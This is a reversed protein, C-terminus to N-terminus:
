MKFPNPGMARLDQVFQEVAQTYKESDRIELNVFRVRDREIMMKQLKDSLDDSRKRVLENGRVYHCQGDNCGGILVGDIGLALADAILANNVYGACPVKVFVVNPPVPLGAELADRAAHYADNQCLFAFVTPEKGDMFSTSAAQIQAAMQKITLNRLSIAALPCIGVCNGCQRCKGLHPTPFENEDFYFSGFPCEEMCRKCKDCKTKDVVPYTPNILVTGGTFRLAELAAHQASEISAAVGMPERCCGGVYIGTRQSEEPHCQLHSEFFGLSNRPLRLVQALEESGQSPVMGGALVLLDLGLNVERGSLTDEVRVRLRGTQADPRVTSPIGRIFTVGEVEKLKQYLEEQFGPSRIDQYFIYCDADPRRQKLYLVQKLSVSCCVTSCYPLHREDRSGVCQIFGVEKPTQALSGLLGEMELNSIVNPYLGYGFEEVKSLPYPDWGATVLVAGVLLEEQRLEQDLEVAKSPCARECERCGPPCLERDVVYAVPFGMPLSPHIAKTSAPQLGAPEGKPQTVSSAPVEVPCVRVCEGCGNCRAEDVFRPRKELRVHFNGPGGELSVVRSLTHFRARGSDSLAQISFELGCLPDCLRPYFRHLSAVKGGVGSQREVLHVEKGLNTLSMAAHLGAAGAGVVLLSDSAPIEAPALPELLRVRALSMQILLLAKKNRATQEMDQRCVGQEELDCWEQLYPNLGEKALKEKLIGQQERSFPGVWLLRGLEGNRVKELVQSLGEPGWPDELLSSCSIGKTKGLKGLLWNLDLAKGLRGGQDWFFIGTKPSPTEM